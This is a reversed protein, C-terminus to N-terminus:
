TSARWGLFLNNSYKPLKDRTKQEYVPTICLRLELRQISAGQTDLGVIYIM